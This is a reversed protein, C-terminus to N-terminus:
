WLALPVGASVAYIEVRLKYKGCGGFTPPGFLGNKSRGSETKGELLRSVSCSITLLILDLKEDIM